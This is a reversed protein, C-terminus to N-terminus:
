AKTRSVRLLLVKKILEEDSLETIAVETTEGSSLNEQITDPEGLTVRQIKVGEAIYRLVDSAALELPDMTKLRKVALSILGKAVNIHSAQMEKIAALQAEDQQKSVYEDWASSRDVWMNRASWHQYQRLKSSTLSGYHNIVAKRLSRDRTSISKYSLFAAYAKASEGPMKNWPENDIVATQVTIMDSM